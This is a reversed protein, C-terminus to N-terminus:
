GILIKKRVSQLSRNDALFLSKITHVTFLIGFMGGEWQGTVGTGHKETVKKAKFTLCCIAQLLFIHFLKAKQQSKQQKKLMQPREGEGTRERRDKWESKIVMCRLAQNLWGGGCEGPKVSGSSDPKM